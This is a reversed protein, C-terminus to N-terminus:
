EYRLAVVPDVRTARMAPVLCAILAVAGLALPVAILTLPDRTGVGFLMSSMVRTIVFSATLGIVVGILVLAMGQRVVLRLIDRTQAGLAMRVGFEHTRQSVLFSMVSFIGVLALATAVGAFLALLAMSFRQRAISNAVLSQMSRVQYLPLDRDIEQVVARLPSSLESVDSFSTRVVISMHAIPVQQFPVYYEPGPETELSRHHVDGVIGVIEGSFHNLGANLRKGVPDEGPFFRKALTGNILMVKPASANDHEDFARGELLPIGMVKLYDPTIVRANAIPRQGPGPDPREDVYFSTDIANDSLPLPMIAAAATAGPLARAKDLLQKYFESQQEDQPYKSEPLSISATLVNEPKFGPDTNRLNVFSKVLLGAGTLLLLSLAVECVVLLGRLRHHSRGESASRGGEKLAENLDVRSMQLAPALGFLVGTLLAAACTFALVGPDLTTESFRSIGAPVFAGILDIGWMSLLLGFIGGIFSLVLSETLLQRVIRARSAGLAARLAIERGRRSARALLLNAVNACAILLVFAVAGLLVLLTRRLNGVMEEQAPMLKVSDGANSKPYQQEIQSAVSRLDVGAQEISAGSKLRGIVELYAAGRQVEMEGKSNLPVFYEPTENVFLFQFGAPLVGIITRSKGNLTLQRGLINKDSGFRREWMDHSIVVVPTGGSVEDEAAFARGMAPNVGLTRFLDASADVGNIQEPNELGTLSANTGEFATIADLTSNQARYDTFNLYSFASGSTGSQANVSLLRVLREPNKYPLPRLLVANVVSFIATNAGIGLALAIIAVLSFGPSKWLVRLGYRFDHLFLNM